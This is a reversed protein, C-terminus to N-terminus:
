SFVFRKLCIKIEDKNKKTKWNNDLLKITDDIKNGIAQKGIKKRSSDSFRTQGTRKFNYENTTMM